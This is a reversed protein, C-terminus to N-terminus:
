LAMFGSASPLAVKNSMFLRQIQDRSVPFQIDSVHVVFVSSGFVHMLRYVNYNTATHLASLAHRDAAM